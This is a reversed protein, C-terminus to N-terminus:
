SGKVRQRSSLLSGALSTQAGDTPIPVHPPINRGVRQESVEQFREFDADRMISESLGLMKASRAVELADPAAEASWGAEAQMAHNPFDNGRCPMGFAGGPHVSTVHGACYTANFGIRRTAAENPGGGHATCLHHLSYEGPALVGALVRDSEAGVGDLQTITQGHKPTCDTLAIWVNVSDPPDLGWYAADQHWGVYSGSQAEKIWLQTKWCFFSPGILDEVADLIEPKTTLNLMWEHTLHGNLFLTSGSQGESREAHEIEAAIDGAEEESLATLPFVVGDRDFREVQEPSLHMM